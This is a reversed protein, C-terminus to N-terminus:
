RMDEISQLIYSTTIAELNRPQINDMNLYICDSAELSEWRVKRSGHGLMMCPTLNNLRMRMHVLCEYANINPIEDNIMVLDYGVKEHKLDLMLDIGDNVTKTKYDRLADSFIGAFYEDHNAILIRRQRNNM